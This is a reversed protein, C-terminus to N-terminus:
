HLETLKINRYIIGIFSEARPICGLQIRLNKTEYWHDWGDALVPVGNVSINYGFITWDLQFHYLRASSFTIPTNVLKIRHDGPDGGNPDTGGNRWIIEMGTPYDARQVLHMKWPSNRFTGFAGFSGADAMSVWKLDKRVSLGEQAGFNTADFELRCSICGQPVDYEIGDSLSLSQWGQDGVFQGGIRRGVTTGTTLPDNIIAPDLTVFSATTSWPGGEGQFEPRVRWTHRQNPVLEAGVTHTTGSDLANEVTVGAANIVQFRYQLTVPPAIPFQLTAARATLVVVPSTLKLDNIPSLTVAPDAKLTSGDAPLDAPANAGVATPAVPATPHSSCGIVGGVLASVGFLALIRRKM